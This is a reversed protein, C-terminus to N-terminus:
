AEMEMLVECADVSARSGPTEGTDIASLIRGGEAMDEATEFHQLSLVTRQDADYLFQLKTIKVGDPPGGAAKIRATVAEVREASVDTFRVVRTFV